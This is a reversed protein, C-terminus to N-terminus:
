ANNQELYNQAKEKLIKLPDNDSLVLTSIKKLIREIEAYDKSNRNVMTVLKTLDYELFSNRTSRVNFISYLVEEASWGFTDIDKPLAVTEIFGNAMKLGIIKSSEGKLDSILFHSHTAVIIHSTAYEPDAFLERIFSLYKMQWNPHLSIEPEDIFVLSNMKVTSMLGVMSSFFHYEGSSSEQLSYGEQRKLKIEPVSIMGLQRLHEILSFENNLQEFSNKDFLNYIIKRSISHKIDSKLVRKEDFLMNCFSCINFLIKKDEKIKLYHNLKFPPNSEPTPYKKNIEDFYVALGEPSLNGNFFRSSNSTYYFIEIEKELGLFNLARVLGNRFADSQYEQVIFEVTRRVYARTSANQAVNRVGLYKYQLFTDVKEGENTTDKRYFPYKDTLSISNAVIAIPFMAEHFAIRNGNKMLHTKTGKNSVVFDMFKGREPINTYEYIDGNLSYKLNFSGDVNSSYTKGKALDNLEKFLEIIIRFLNSKGTGNAGILVTTYIENQKDASEIFNYFLNGKSMLTNNILELSILKFGKCNFVEDKLKDKM